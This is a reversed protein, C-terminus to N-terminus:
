TTRPEGDIETLRDPWEKLMRGAVAPEIDCHLVIGNEDFREDHIDCLRHFESLLRYDPPSIRFCREVHREDLNRRILDLLERINIGRAASIFVSGAEAGSLATIMEPRPLLDIKNFVTIVPKRDAGIEKLTRRVVEIQEQMHPHSIDVVHLLFDAELVEELTSHFSVVLRPPLKRIFGITDAVLVKRKGIEMARVTADLTAFLKDEVLVDSGTLINLLTSKGANTYGVLAIRVIDRRSKRQTRRRQEIRELKRKLRSIRDRVMRRDTEIQTEGPGKTRIGGYQKSLHAWLRTLRPLLYELQALEVQTKATDTRAHRAFIDLILGTRDIVKRGLMRELNRQQVPSLDDDFIVTDIDHEECRRALDEAKGKGIFTAPDIKIRTQFIKEVVVGGATRTLQELEELHEETEALRQAPPRPVGVLIVTEEREASRFPTLTRAPSDQTSSERMPSRESHVIMERAQRIEMPDISGDNIPTM